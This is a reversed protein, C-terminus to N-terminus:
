KMSSALESTQKGVADMPNIYKGNHLLELHVHIGAETDILDTGSVGIKQNADVIDGTKVTANSLASYVSVIGNTHEITIKVSQLEDESTLVEKVVGPYVSYVDFVSNDPKSYSIGHSYYFITGNSVVALEHTEKDDLEFFGRTIVYEGDVPLLFTDINPEEPTPNNPTNTVPPKSGDDIGGVGDADDKIAFNAISIVGVFTVVLVGLFILLDKKEKLFNKFNNRM